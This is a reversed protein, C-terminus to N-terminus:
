LDNYLHFVDLEGRPGGAVETTGLPDFAVAVLVDNGHSEERVFNRIDSIGPDIKALV